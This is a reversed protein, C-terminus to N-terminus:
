SRINKIWNKVCSLAMKIGVKRQIYPIQKLLDYTSSFSSVYWGVYVRRKESYDLKRPILKPLNAILELHEEFKEKQSTIENYSGSGKIRDSRYVGVIKDLQFLKGHLLIYLSITLDGVRKCARFYRYDFLGDDYINKYLVACGDYAIRNNLFDDLGIDKNNSKKDYLIQMLGTKESLTVRRGCVGVYQEHNTLWDLLTQLGDRGVWYDDGECAYIYKGKAEQFILYANKGDSNKDRLILRVNKIHSYNELLIQPTHDTSADDAILLEYEFDMQQSLISDVSQKIYKEHNYTILCISVLPYNGM